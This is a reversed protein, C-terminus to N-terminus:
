DPNGKAPLTLTICLGHPSVPKAEVSGRHAAAAEAVIALGLGSGTRASSAQARYFRDFVRPLEDAPVGPGDDSVEIVIHDDATTACITAIATDPTHTHINATLNDITRRLLEEDGEITLNEDIRIRWTRNPEADQARDTCQRILNTLDIPAYNQDPHQDLRALRLMDDVLASMRRTESGIRHMVEDVQDRRALAGQQYLEANARLSALPNRLEHSADAFFRRMAEQDAEREQVTAEIRALMDNLAAGLRGVESGPGKLDVRDTLDGATIRDAEAAMQEIPRLGRRLILVVGAGILLVVAFSGLLIILRAQGVTRDVQDMSAAVVLTGAAVKTTQLRLLGQGGPAAVTRAGTAARRLAVLVMPPLQSLGPGPAVELVVNQGKMPLFVVNYDGAVSRDLVEEPASGLANASNPGVETSAPMPVSEGPSGSQNHVLLLPLRPATVSSVSRLATDTQDVLYGRLATVAAIDFAALAILIVSVVGALVRFRLQARLHRRPKKTRASNKM